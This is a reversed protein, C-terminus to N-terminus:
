VGSWTDLVDRERRGVDHLGDLRELLSTDPEERRRARVVLVDRLADARDVLVVVVQSPEADEGIAVVVAVQQLDERLGRLVARREEELHDLAVARAAEAVAVELREELRDLTFLRESPVELRSATRRGVRLREASAACGAGRSRCAGSRPPSPARPS